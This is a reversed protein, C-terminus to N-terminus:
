QPPSMGEMLIKKICFAAEERKAIQCKWLRGKVIVDCNSATRHRSEPHFSVNSWTAEPTWCLRTGAEEGLQVEQREKEEQGAEATWKYKRKLAVHDRVDEQKQKRDFYEGVEEKDPTIESQKKLYKKGLLLKRQDDMNDQDVKSDRWRHYTSDRFYNCQM